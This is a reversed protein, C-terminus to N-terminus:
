AIYFNFFQKLHQSPDVTFVKDEIVNTGEMERLSMARAAGDDVVQHCNRTWLNEMMSEVTLSFQIKKWQARNTGVGREKVVTRLTIDQREMIMGDEEVKEL